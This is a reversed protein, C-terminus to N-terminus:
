QTRGYGLTSLFPGILPFFRATIIVSPRNARAWDSNAARWPNGEDTTRAYFKFTDNTSLDTNMMTSFFSMYSHFYMEQVLTFSGAKSREWETGMCIRGGDSYINPYAPHYFEGGRFVVLYCLGPLHLSSTQGFTEIFFLDGWAAPWPFTNDKLAIEGTEPKLRLTPRLLTPHNPDLGFASRFPLADLKTVITLDGQPVKVLHSHHTGTKFANPVFTPQAQMLSRLYSEQTGLSTEAYSRLVFEGNRLLVESHDSPM